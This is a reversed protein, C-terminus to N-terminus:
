PAVRRCEASEVPARCSGAVDPTAVPEPLVAEPVPLPTTVALETEPLPPAEPRPEPADVIPNQEVEIREPPQVLDDPLQNWVAADNAAPANPSVVALESEPLIRFADPPPAPPADPRWTLTGPGGPVAEPWLALIGCVLSFHVVISFLLAKQSVRRRGWRTGLMTLLHASALVLGAALAILLAPQLVVAVFRALEWRQAFLDLSATIM